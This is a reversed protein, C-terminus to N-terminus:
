EVEPLAPSSPLRPQRSRRAAPGESAVTRFQASLKAFAEATFFFNIGLGLLGPFILMGKWDINWAPSVMGYLSLGVVFLLCPLALIRFIAFLAARNPKRSTLGLWMVVWSLAFMDLLLFAGVFLHLWFWVQRDEGELPQLEMILFIANALLLTLVPAAFQRRLALRQGRVIHKEDLPTSLLLELGGTRRDEALTRSAAVALWCKLITGTAALILLDRAPEFPEDTWIRGTWFWIFGGLLVPLWVWARRSEPRSARWLFPEVALLRARARARAASANQMWAGPRPGAIKGAFSDQWSRPTLWCALLFFFWSYLQTVLANSWFDAQKNPNSPDDFALFCAYAPSSLRAAHPDPNPHLQLQSAVPWGILLALAVFISLGMAWHDQRCLASAALGLSLFFFLLNVSVLVVRLVEARSVAGLLLPIALVPLVALMGYFANLSTAALKGLVVDYGKLDTLFLLGLTGERKEESLCDTTVQTGVVATYLFLLTALFRFLVAGTEQSSVSAAMFVWAAVVSAAVAALFRSRYTARRRAAVRLERELVPLFTM